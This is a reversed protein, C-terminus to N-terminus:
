DPIKIKAINVLKNTAIQFKYLIYKQKHIDEVHCVEKNIVSALLSFVSLCWNGSKHRCVISYVNRTETEGSILCSKYILQKSTRFIM